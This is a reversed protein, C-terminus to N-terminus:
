ALVPLKMLLRALGEWLGFRQLVECWVKGCVLGEWLGFRRVSWVESSSWVLGERLGFM